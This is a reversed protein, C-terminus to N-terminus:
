INHYRMGESQVSPRDPRVKAYITVIESGSGEEKLLVFNM